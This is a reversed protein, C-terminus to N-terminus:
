FEGKIGFQWLVGTSVVRSLAAGQGEIFGDYVILPKNTLNRAQFFLNAYKSVQYGGSLDLKLEAPRWRGYTNTWPTDDSWVGGVRLNYRDYTWSVNASARHPVRGPRRANSYLRTYALSVNTGRLVGPLFALAQNYGLEMSRFRVTQTSNNTTSIFTYNALGPDDVGFETATFERSVALNTIENQSLQFTFSGVPEFYYAFRTVINDSIEPKLDPNPASVTLATDNVVWVGSLANIPPRSIARNYGFQMTLAPTFNYKGGFSPFWEAYEGERTTRPKSLFQYQMGPITSARRTTASIPFGAAAVEPATRPNWEKSQTLTNERRLGGQLQFKGLRTELMGYGATVVQRLDRKNAIFATYYNEATAINTFLQPQNKFLAGIADRNVLVPMNAIRPTGLSGLSFKRPSPLFSWSGGPGGGPGDYSWVQYPTTNESKRLQENAKGGFKFTTAPGFPLKYRADFQGNYIEDLVSRGEGNMRPNKYNDLDSWDPGSLQRITWEYSTPSPRTAIWDATIANVTEVRTFNQELTEYDNFSKSYSGTGKLQFPGATYEFQPTYTSTRTNKSASGGAHNITRSTNAAGGGTQVTTVGDGIVTGRGTAAVTNNTSSTFALVPQRFRTEYANYVFSMGVVFRPSLKYDITATTGFNSDFSAGSQFTMSSLVLPRPDAATPTGRNFTTSIVDSRIYNRAQSLNLLVGLRNNLFSESYGFQVNPAVKYSERDEPGPTKKYTFEESNIGLGFQYNVRRGKRDCARKTKMNIRGAPADADMEASLTRSIEISEIGSLVMSEFGTSRSAGGSVGNDTNGYAVFADASALKVGDVAVGVYQPDLGGLMPSRAVGSQYEVDVGPLYKLFEGVNGQAVDGFVDSAVSTTINMSRKQEMIAKANGERESSIVFETLKITDGSKATLATSALDFDRTATGGAPVTLRAPATVYGTYTVNVTVEGAPVGTLSFTGGDGSTTVLATGAVAIEANRVYERTAPNFVRGTITGTGGSQAPAHPAGFLWVAILLLRPLLLNLPRFSPLPKM